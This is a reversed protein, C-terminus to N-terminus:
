DQDDSALDNGEGGAGMDISTAGSRQPVDRLPNRKKKDLEIGEPHGGKGVNHRPIPATANSIGLVDGQQKVKESKKEMEEERFSEGSGAHQWSRVAGLSARPDFSTRL